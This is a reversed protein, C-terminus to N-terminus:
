LHKMHRTEPIVVIDGVFLDMVQEKNRWLWFAYRVQPVQTVQEQMHHHQPVELIRQNFKMRAIM